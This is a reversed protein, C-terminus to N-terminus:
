VGSPVMTPTDVTRSKNPNMAKGMKGKEDRLRRM